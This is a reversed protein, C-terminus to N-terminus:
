GVHETTSCNIILDFQEGADLTTVDVQRFEVNPYGTEFQQPMLDIALVRAGLSAAALSLVGIGCGFDLVRSNDDAYRGIRAAVYTWELDRDGLLNPIQTKDEPPLAPTPRLRTRLARLYHTM